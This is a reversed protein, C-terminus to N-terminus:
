FEFENEVSKDFKRVLLIFSLFIFYYYYLYDYIFFSYNILRFKHVM